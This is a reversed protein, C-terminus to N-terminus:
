YSFRMSDFRANMIIWFIIKISINSEIVHINNRFRVKALKVPFSRIELLMNYFSQNYLVVRRLFVGLFKMIQIASKLVFHAAPLSVNKQSKNSKVERNWCFYDQFTFFTVVPAYLTITWTTIWTKNVRCMMGIM